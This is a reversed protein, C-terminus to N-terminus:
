RLDPAHTACCAPVDGQLESTLARESEQDVVAVLPEAM